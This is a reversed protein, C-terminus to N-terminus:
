TDPPLVIVPPRQDFPVERPPAVVRRVRRHKEIPAEDPNPVPPTVITRGNPLQLIWNGDQTVGVFEARMSGVRMPPTSARRGASTGRRRSRGSSRKAAIAKTENTPKATSAPSSGAAARDANAHLNNWVDQPTRIQTKESSSESEEKDPPTYTPQQREPSNAASSASVDPGEAPPPPETIRDNAAIQPPANKTEANETPRAAAPLPLPQANAPSNQAAVRPSPPRNEGTTIARSNSQPTGGSAGQNTSAVAPPMPANQGTTVSPPTQGSALPASDPVGVPVGITSLDRQRHLLSQLRTPVLVATALGLALLLAALALGIAPARNRSREVKSPLESALPVGFRRVGHRPEVKQLCKRLEEAFVVPDQPREEPNYQLMRRLVKRVARPIKGVSPLEREAVGNENPIGALPVAGTLLFCMTAGLSFIESRFDVTGHQLQEPSAFQPAVTPVLERPENEESYLKLGALGFNLLKVFPWEGEPNTGSVIMLNSPQISRHTLGHFMAAALASVVQLGIRVVADPAMTGHAVIWADATEGQLYETVFVIHEDEIRVDFVKAVNLHDLKQAARAQEEFQERASQNVSTLPIVQLAVPHGSRYDIAKYTVVSGLRTLERPTGDERICVCYHKSFTTSGM